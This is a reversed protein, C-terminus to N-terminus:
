AVNHKGLPCTIESTLIKLRVICGCEKCIGMKYRDCAKCIDLKSM